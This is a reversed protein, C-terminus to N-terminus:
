LNTVNSPLQHCPNPSMLSKYVGISLTGNWIGHLRVTVGNHLDGPVGSCGCIQRTSHSVDQDNSSWHVALSRAVWSIDYILSMCAGLSVSSHWCRCIQAHQLRFQSFVSQKAFIHVVHRSFGLEVSSRSSYERVGESLYWPISGPTIVSVHKKVWWLLTCWRTRIRHVYACVFMDIVYHLPM